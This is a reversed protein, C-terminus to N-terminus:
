YLNYELIDVCENIIELKDSENFSKDRLIDKMRKVAKCMEKYDDNEIGIFSM